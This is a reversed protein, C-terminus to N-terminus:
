NILQKLKEVFYDIENKTNYIALSVRATGELNFKDMLPQTCHHGTRIAIGKSDLLLGLDYYHIKDMTFSFIGIKNKSNGIINIGEIKNFSNSAYNKLEKEYLSINDLGINNIFSLAENFGIVDGINPTGAEFKYPLENYTTKKFNVDKIMEGGGMYPPMKELIEEKGYVIGVGTPGYMKHASLVFFDCNLDQVDIKSHASAQAGDIMTNINNKKCIEIMEKIPNVTGLTNSTHVISLFKTKNSILEKFNDLDIEGNEFVNITKLIIGNEECIMQWPVINSHHEMESIIIEDGKKIFNKVFSSAILNIGETTGRTFIVEKESRSNIFKSVTKRTKEYEQTAKEALTHIGRHINANYESYYKNISEIVQIPKQTTAANDFYVLQNNNIKKNLIPFKDRIRNPNFSKISM